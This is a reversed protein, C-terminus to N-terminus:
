RLPHTEDIPARALERGDKRVVERREGTLHVVAGTIAMRVSRSSVKEADRADVEDLSIAAQAVPAPGALDIPVLSGGTRNGGDHVWRTWVMLMPRADIAILHASTLGDIHISTVKRDRVLAVACSGVVCPVFAVIAGDSTKARHLMAACEKPPRAPAEGPQIGACIWAATPVDIEPGLDSAFGYLGSTDSSQSVIVMPGDRESAAPSAGPPSKWHM